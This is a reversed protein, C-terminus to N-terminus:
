RASELRSRANRESIGVSIQISEAFRGRLCNTERKRTIIQTSTGLDHECEGLTRITSEAFSEVVLQPAEERHGFEGFVCSCCAGHVLLNVTYDARPGATHENTGFYILPEANSFYGRLADHLTYIRTALASSGLLNTGFCILGM